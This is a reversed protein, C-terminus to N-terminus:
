LTKWDTALESDKIVLYAIITLMTRSPNIECM